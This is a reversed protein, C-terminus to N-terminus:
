YLLHIQDNIIDRADTVRFELDLLVYSKFGQKYVDNRTLSEDSGVDIVTKRRLGNSSSVVIMKNAIMKFGNVPTHGVIHVNCGIRELFSSIDKETFHYYPKWLMDDFITNFYDTNINIIDDLTKIDKSPGAHSIFVKNDTKIAIPLEEFLDNYETIKAQWDRPYRKRVKETFDKTQDIGLKYVPQSILQSWEHNGLLVHFNTYNERYRMLSELIELSGDVDQASPHIFDGTIIVHDLDLDLNNWLGEYYRYDTLNGHLDTIILAKGALPLRVLKASNKSM